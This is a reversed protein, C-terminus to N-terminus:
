RMANAVTILLFFCFFVVVSATARAFGIRAHEVAFGMDRDWSTEGCRTLRGHAIALTFLSVLPFGTGLGRWWVKLSRKLAASYSIPRLGPGVVRTNFLWKGPTTGFSSILFAEVFTWAFLMVIGLLQDGGPQEEFADPAVVGVILGAPLAFLFIDFVRAWYRVWPRVPTSASAAVPSTTARDRIDITRHVAAGCRSCFNCDDALLVACQTCDM